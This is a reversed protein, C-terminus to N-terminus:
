WISRYHETSWKRIIKHQNREAWQKFTATTHSHTLYGQWPESAENGPEEGAKKYLICCFAPSSGPFSALPEGCQLVWGHWTGWPIPVWHSVTACFHLHCRSTEWHSWWHHSCIWEHDDTEVSALSRELTTILTTSSPLGWHWQCGNYTYIWWVMINNYAGDKNKPPNSKLLKWLLFLSVHLLIQCKSKMWTNKWLAMRMSILNVLPPNWM